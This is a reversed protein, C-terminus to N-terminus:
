TQTLWQTATHKLELPTHVLGHAGWRDPQDEEHLYGFTCALTHMRAAQGAQVDREHDGAYLCHEPALGLQDSAAWLMAPDPKITPLDGQCVLAPPERELLQALVKETHPRPKNTVIGWPIGDRDLELLWDRIGPYWSNLTVPTDLFLALFDARRQNFRPHEPTMQHIERIAARAGASAFHERHETLRPLGVQDAYADMAAMFAPASDLLTGDLDFLLGKRATM